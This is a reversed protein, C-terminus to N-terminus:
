EPVVFKYGVGHVTQFYQPASPDDELKKRIRSLHNTISREYGSLADGYIDANLEDRTFVKGPHTSFLELLDFERATLEIEEGRKKVIRQTSDIELEGFQQVSAQGKEVPSSRRMVATVRAKLEAVSFPKTIYDDAGLELLLVKDVQEVSATLMLIPANSSLRIKKCVDVGRLGPLDLDLLVFEYQTNAFMQLGQPGDTAFDLAYGLSMIEAELLDFVTRDDDILLARQGM